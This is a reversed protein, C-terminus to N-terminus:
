KLGELISGPDILTARKDRWFSEMLHDQAHRVQRGFLAPTDRLADLDDNVISSFHFPQINTYISAGTRIPASVVSAAVAEAVPTPPLLRRFLPAAIVGFFDRRDFNM